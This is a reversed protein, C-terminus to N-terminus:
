RREDADQAPAQLPLHSYAKHLHGVREGEITRLSTTCRWGQRMTARLPITKPHTQKEVKTGPQGVHRDGGPKDEYIVTATQTYGMRELLERVYIIEVCALTAQVYESEASSLTVLPLLGARFAIPAGNLFLVYGGTSKSTIKCDADSTDAYAVLTNPGFGRPDVTPFMIGLDMTGKLYKFVRKAATILTQTPKTMYRALTNVAYAIDPRTWIALFILSGILSQYEKILEPPASEDIDDETVAFRADMPTDYTKADLLGYRRLCRILYAKQSAYWGGKVREFKIGLYHKLEGDDSITFFGSMFELWEKRLEESNGTMLCDDVVIAIVLTTYGDRHSPDKRRVIFATEDDTLAEMGFEKNRRVFLKWWLRGSAALGYVAKKLRMVKKPNSQHELGRPPRLYVPEPLEANIYATKVDAQKIMWKNASAISIITRITVPHAMPAFSDVFEAESQQFGRAVIRAKWRSVNNSADLKLKYVIKSDIINSDQPPDVWEFVELEEWAKWESMTAEWWQTADDRKMAEELDKPEQMLSLCCQLPHSNNACSIDHRQAQLTLYARLLDRHEDEHQTSHHKINAQRGRVADIAATYAKCRSQENTLRANAANVEGQNVPEASESEELGIEPMFVSAGAQESARREAEANETAIVSEWMDQSMSPLSSFHRRREQNTMAETAQRERQQEARQREETEIQRRQARTRARNNREEDIETMTSETEVDVVIEPEFEEDSDAESEMEELSQGAVSTIITPEGQKDNWFNPDPQSGKRRPFYNDNFTVNYRTIYLRRGDMAAIVYGKYGMHFGLGVFIGMIATDDLKQDKRRKKRIHVYAACGFPHLMSNDPPHGHFAHFCTKDSNHIFPLTRNEIETAYIVAFGWWRKAMGSHALMVRARMSLSGIGAEARPNQEHEDPCCTQHFINRDKYYKEARASCIEGANDSRFVKPVRGAITIVRDLAELWKDKVSLLFTFKYNSADDIFTVFYRAGQISKTRIWGSMDSHLMYMVEKFRKFTSPPKAQRKAKARACADCHPMQTNSPLRALEEMGPIHKAVRLLYWPNIHGLTRHWKLLIAGKTTGRVSEENPGLEIIREERTMEETENTTTAEATDFIDDDFADAIERQRPTDNQPGENEGLAPVEENEGDDENVWKL